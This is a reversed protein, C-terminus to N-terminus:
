HNIWQYSKQFAQYCSCSETALKLLDVIKVQGRSYRIINKQHLFYAAESVSSRRVGLLNSISEQTINFCNTNISGQIIMLLYALRKEVPHFHHCGVSISLREMVVLVYFSMLVRLSHSNAVLELYKSTPLRYADGSIQVIAASTAVDAGLFVAIGLMGECGILGTEISKGDVTSILSILSDIPFYVYDIPQDTTNLHQKADLRVVESAELLLTLVNLSLKSLLLNKNAKPHSVKMRIVIM